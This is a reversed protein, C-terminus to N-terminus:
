FEIVFKGDKYVLEDDVWIEGGDRMDSVMDWHIGSENKGGVEPLGAGVAIHFSGGIKEDFLTEGTYRTIGTNTGIAFEGLYRAGDDTDLTQLMFDENKDASAKVVRGQEFWLRVGVVEQGGYITPYSFSVHGEVSEEVPSACVEGDPMNEHGDCNMFPRGAISLRLDTDAAVVRVQEKGEFWDVIKQQWASFRQWHGVPDDMDPLCAGYVFDEYESLSMEADQAYANTPFLTGVWRLDGSAIRQLMVKFLEAQGRRRMAMRAPDINTLARTNQSSMVVIRADYTKVILELPEPVHALHEDSGYRYLLEDSGPLGVLMLPHGGAQLVKVYVAKLLPEGVADGQVLVKDGPQIAVSYSVLVDALRQIRPDRMTTEGKSIM